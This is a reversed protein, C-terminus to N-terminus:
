ALSQGQGGKILREPFCEPRDAADKIQGRSWTPPASAEQRLDLGQQVLLGGPCPASWAHARGEPGSSRGWGRLALNVVQGEAPSNEQEGQTHSSLAVRRTGAGSDGPM